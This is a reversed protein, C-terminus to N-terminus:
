PKSLQEKRFFTFFGGCVVLQAILGVWFWAKGIGPYIGMTFDPFVDGPGVNNPAFARACITAISGLVQAAILTFAIHIRTLTQLLIMGFGVGQIADLTGLWLWLSRSFLASALPSGLWPVYAGIPTCSWLMQCWRPAGLGIAFIPIIWSHDKSLRGFIWLFGAWVFGFFIVILIVIQWTEAHRSSFLYLWNRGYLTSLFFNQIVVAVFFWLIIKRRFLSAYFSPVKGPAQRYYDPLGTFIITGVAWMLIAIPVTVATMYINGTNFKAEGRGDAQRRNLYDGWFWLACVYIQQSGQIICARYAWDKIPAGGEDGFNLAFFISGSSAAIAYMGTAINQMWERGHDANVFPAMGLFFFALGYFIFPTSLVYVSKMWIFMNWWFISFTLYIAATVYLREATQGVTGSLLTIQYSNAAIIQGFALLFSYVPWTGIRYQLFLRLGTPPKYDNGLLFQDGPVGDNAMMSNQLPHGHQDNMFSDISSRRSMITPTGIKSPTASGRGLKADRFKDFWKKESKVLYDEICM